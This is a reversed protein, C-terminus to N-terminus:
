EVEKLIDFNINYFKDGQLLLESYKFISKEADDKDKLYEKRSKSEYHYLEINPDFLNYYGLM